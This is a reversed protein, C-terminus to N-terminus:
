DGYQRCDQVACEVRAIEASLRLLSAALIFRQAIGTGPSERPLGPL